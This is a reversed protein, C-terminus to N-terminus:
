SNTYLKISIAIHNQPTKTRQNENITSSNTNSM